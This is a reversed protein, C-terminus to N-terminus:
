NTGIFQSGLRYCAQSEKTNVLLLAFCFLVGLLYEVHLNQLKGAELGTLFDGSIVSYHDPATGPVQGAEPGQLSVSLHHRHASLWNREARVM